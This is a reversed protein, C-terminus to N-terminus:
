PKYKIGVLGMIALVITGIVTRVVWSQNGELKGLRDELKKLDEVSPTATDVAEIKKELATKAARLETEIDALEARLQSTEAAPALNDIQKQQSALREEFRALAVRIETLDPMTVSTGPGPVRSRAEPAAHARGAGETPKGDLLYTPHRLAEEGGREEEFGSDPSVGATVVDGRGPARGSRREPM